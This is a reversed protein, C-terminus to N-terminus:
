PQPSRVSSLPCPSSSERISGAKTECSTPTSPLLPMISKWRASCSCRSQASHHMSIRTPVWRGGLRPELVADVANTKGIKYHALPWWTGMQETFVRWAIAPPAKVTLVKRVRNLDTANSRLRLRRSRSPAASNLTGTVRSIAIRRHDEALAFDGAIDRSETGERKKAPRIAVSSSGTRGIVSPEM